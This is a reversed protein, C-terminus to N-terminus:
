QVTWTGRAVFGSNTGPENAQLYVTKAGDFATTYVVNITFMVSDGSFLAGTYGVACQSNQLTMSSGIGKTNLTVGDDGYLGITSNTRNYVLYCASATNNPSGATILMSMGSINFQTVSDSVTFLYTPSLGSGSSPSVSNATPAGGTVNWTGLIVDGTNAGPEGAYVYVNKLGFFSSNFAIDLTIVLSTTGVFVTSNAGNVTCQSNAITQTQGLLLKASGNTATDYSLTLTGATGDYVINCANNVSTSTSLLVAVGNIYSAGGQDSVTVTFRQSPGSGAVPVVSNVMPFGPAAVTYTGLVVTGTNLTGESAYMYINKLGNFPGKFTISLTELLQLGVFSVSGAGVQCQSNQLIQASGLAKIDQGLGSDWVLSITGEVRNYIVECSNALTGTASFQVTTTLLNQPTQTDAFAFTFTQGLGQGASPTVAVLSPQPAPLVVNWSGELVLGTNTVADTAALYVSQNGTFAAQYTISLMMTLTTGSLSVSSGSGNLICQSNQAIGGTPVTTSGSSAVDNYLQFQGTSKLYTVYCSADTAASTSVLLSASTIATAGAPHSYVATYTVTNGSGSTPSLSVVSPVQAPPVTVGLRAVWGTVGSINSAQIPGQTPLDFSGTQGGIFINGNADVVIANAEDAGTGGFFTSFTLGNGAANLKAVFADYVGGFASQVPTVQPFAAASTYGAIYANGATDIAIGSSWDFGYTGLYTSYVFAGASGIKTVFADEGGGPSTQFASLTTPFNTSNTVGTVYMSGNSDVAIGTAEEPSSTTGGSGGLYTSFFIPSGSGALETIFADQSGGNTAQTAGAVPFNTSFTGGAVYISGNAGITIASGHENASGGLYTSFLILGTSNYKTIFADTNGGLTSQVATQVPFNTSATDGVVYANGNSDLTIANGQDAGSGGLYTSFVLRNGVSNLKLVFADRSGAYVQASSALPFDFSTTSGTVFASGSSDVAIGSARDDSSGGIYTAYILASGSANLKAVFADVGGHNLAQEAGALPFDTSATWGTMYLNGSSDVVMSNVSSTSSGGFYTSYSIVPDIVLPLSPDYAGLEFGATHADMLRYRSEIAIRRGRPSTQYAVPAQETMEIGQARIVLAGAANIEISEADPYHLIIQSPDSGATVSYESKIRQGDIAYVASIGPYLSAYRIKSYLPLNQKWGKPDNGLLFNAHAPLEDQGSLSAQPNAGQFKLHLQRDGTKFVVGQSTFGASLEQTRIAFRVDAEMQGHNPIFFLPLSSPAEAAMVPMVALLLLAFRSHM